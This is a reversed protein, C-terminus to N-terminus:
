GGSALKPLAVYFASGREPQSEALVQGGHQEVIQKVEALSIFGESETQAKSQWIQM